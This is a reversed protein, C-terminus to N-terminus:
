SMRPGMNEPFVHTSQMMEYNVLRNFWQLVVAAVIIEVM